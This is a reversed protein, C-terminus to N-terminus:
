TVRLLQRLALATRDDLGSELEAYRTAASYRAWDIRAAVDSVQRWEAKSLRLASNTM